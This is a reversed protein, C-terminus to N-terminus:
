GTVFAAGRVAAPAQRPAVVPAPKDAFLARIFL